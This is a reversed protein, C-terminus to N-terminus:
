SPVQEILVGDRGLVGGRLGNQFLIEGHAVPVDGGTANVTLLVGGKQVRVLRPYNRDFRLAMKDRRLDPCAHRVAILAKVKSQFRSFKGADIEDWPMTSRNYPTRKRRMAIETGYYLCPTGAMCLVVALKQLLENQSRCGDRARATDHTDLFNFVVENIQQPYLSRSFNLRLMFDHATLAKDRWFDSLSGTFPYNM